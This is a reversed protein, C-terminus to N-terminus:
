QVQAFKKDGLEEASIVSIHFVLVQMDIEAAVELLIKLYYSISLKIKLLVLLASLVLLCIEGGLHPLM